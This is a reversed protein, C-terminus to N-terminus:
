NDAKEQRKKGTLLVVFSVCLLLLYLAEMSDGTQPAVDDSPTETSPTEASPNETSPDKTSPDEASPNETSPDEASPDEPEVDVINKSIAIRDIDPAYYTNNSFRITNEGAQLAIVIRAVAPHVYDGSNLQEMEYTTDGNVTLTVKRNEGCCYYLLLEYTGTEEVTIKNFTLTNAAGLGVYGVKQGGSCFASSAKVAAGELTNNSSEAEYYTYNPNNMDESEAVTTDITDKTVLVAVGGADLLDFSLTDASTVDKQEILLQSGDENDKYIYAHYTGTGLFDLAVGINRAKATMSGIYWNEGNRRAYTIYEGPYGEILKSEEWTTSLNNLFSLGNYYKYVSVPYAFHQLASEYVVTMALGFGYTSENSGVKTAVPTYDMSGLLNRTFPYILCNQVTPYEFWKHWEEGQVAETSLINPYTRYEGAPRICGHYLIMLKNKASCIAAAEMVDLVDQADSEFYDTKLGVAGAAKWKSFLTEMTDLDKIDRYNVWVFIGVGKSEAYKCLEPLRDEFARWGVDLCVYEWGNEAAFDIYEIHKDYNGQEADEAWWSWAVKGPKIWSTDAFLDADPEPNLDSVISSTCFEEFDDSIVAVRWPTAFGNRTEVKTIQIHGPSDLDGTSEHAPDREDGFSWILSQSGKETRLASSCYDAKGGVSNNFVNAETFLIWYNGQNALLPTSLRATLANLQSGTRRVYEGEYTGNLNFAWTYAKPQLVYESNEQTVTVSAGSGATVNEYRYAAGDDFVRIIFDFSGKANALTFKTETYHNDATAAAGTITEYTENFERTEVSGAQLSLGASLDAEELVMGIASSEIVVTDGETVSYYFKGAADKWVQMLNNGDPSVTALETVETLETEGMYKTLDPVYEEANYELTETEFDWIYAAGSPLSKAESASLAKDYIRIDSVLGAFGKVNNYVSNGISSNVYDDLIREGGEYDGFLYELASSIDAGADTETIAAETGNVYIHLEEKSVSLVVDSWETVPFASTTGTSRTKHGGPEAFSKDDGAAGNNYTASPSYVGNITRGGVYVRITGGANLSIEPADRWFTDGTGYGSLNTQFINAAADASSDPKVSLSVTFGDKANKWVDSPLELYGADGDLKLVNKQLEADYVVSIGQETLVAETTNTGSSKVKVDSWDSLVPLDAAARLPNSDSSKDAAAYVLTPVAFVASMALALVRKALKRRKM